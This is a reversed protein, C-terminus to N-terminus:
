DIAPAQTIIHWKPRQFTTRFDEVGRERARQQREYGDLFVVLDLQAQPTGYHTDFMEAIANAPTVTRGMMEKLPLQLGDVNRDPEYAKYILETCVLADDTLFDFNYDYPRGSYGFARYTAQAIGAKGLRPRLVALSDCGASYALTTFVVGHAIAEIVRPSIGEPSAKVAHAYATPHHRRLLGELSEAGMAQLWQSLAPDNQFYKEREEPSGVYLAAHTWFGPIGINTLYWERRELLIDGPLLRGEIEKLQEVTILNVHRRYVRTNGMWNAVGKQVPFWLKGGSKRLIALGNQLTMLEGRGQGTKYIRARDQPIFGDWPPQPTPKLTLSVAELALFETARFVNLFRYKFRDYSGKPIGMDPLPQNFLTDYDPNNVSISLFDLAYRYETLRAAKLILFSARRRQPEALDWFGAHLQGLADLAMYHDVLSKWVVLAKQRDERDPFTEKNRKAVPFLDPHNAMYRLIKTLGSRYVAVAKLDEIQREALVEEPIDALDLGRAEATYALSLFLGILLVNRM